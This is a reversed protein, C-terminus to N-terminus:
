PTHLSMPVSKATLVATGEADNWLRKM